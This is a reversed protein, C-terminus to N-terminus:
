DPTDDKVTLYKVISQAIKVLYVATQKSIFTSVLPHNSTIVKVKM